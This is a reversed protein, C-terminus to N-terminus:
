FYFVSKLAIKDINGFQIWRMSINDRMGEIIQKREISMTASVPLLGLLAHEVTHRRTFELTAFFTFPLSLFRM